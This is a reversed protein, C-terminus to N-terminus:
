KKGLIGLPDSQPGAPGPITLGTPPQMKFASYAQALAQDYLAKRKEPTLEMKEMPGLNSMYNDFIKDAASMVAATGKSGSSLYEAEAEAKKGAGKYYAEQAERLSKTMEDKERERRSGLTGIGAEGFAQMFNPSKSALLRLGMELYDDNSLGKRESKPTDAKAAAILEKQADKPLADRVAEVGLDAGWGAEGPAPVNAAVQPALAAGVAGGPATATSLLKAAKAGEMMRSADRAERAISAAQIAEAKSPISAAKAASAAQSALRAEGPMAGSLQAAEQAAQAAKLSQLGATEAQLSQIEKATLGATKTLGLKEALREGGAAARSLLGQGTSLYNPLYAAGTAGSLATNLNSINRQAEPSLGLTDGTRGFFGKQEPIAAPAQVGGTPIQSAATSGIPAQAQPLEGAGATGIPLIKTLYAATEKPLGLRNLQGQNQKLHTDLKGQGWNYAALAKAPDTYKNQLKSFYGLSADINKYPDKREEDSLGMEKATGPMLQGLGVAGKKSTATPNFNSETGFLRLAMDPDIGMAAAKQLIYKKYDEPSGASVLSGEDGAFAVIGGGAFNMPGAPLRGIGVSEPMPAAMSAIDQDVVKPQPQMGQQGQAAQRTQKRRNSESVALAMIYPDSKNMAAYKQLMADPMQALRSTIQEINLM